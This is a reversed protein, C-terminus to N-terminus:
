DFREKGKTKETMPLAIDSYADIFRRFFNTFGLFSLTERLSKPSPWETIAAVRSPDMSIGQTSVLYGLFEVTTVNFLCKELKCFLQWDLLQKLVERVHEEHQSVDESYILINDLYIIVLKDVFKRLCQDIYAQFTAPANCLGFPVVLYEFSGFRSRFATMWEHGPHIRILNYAGRLDLKIFIKAKGLRNLIESILPIPYRNPITKSNLDRYDVCLRLKTTGKKSAFLVSAGAKSKSRRIFGLHTMKNIYNRFVELEYEFLNYLPGFSPKIGSRLIIKHDIGPRSPPLKEAEDKSFVLALDRYASPISTPAEQTKTTDDRTLALFALAFAMSDEKQPNEAQEIADHTLNLFAIVDMNNKDETPHENRSVCGSRWDITPNHQKLWPLGLIVSGTKLPMERFTSSAKGEFLPCEFEIEKCASTSAPEIVKKNVDRVPPCYTNHSIHKLGWLTEPSIFNNTAASDIIATVIIPENNNDICTITTTQFLEEVRTLQLFDDEEDEIITIKNKQESKNNM